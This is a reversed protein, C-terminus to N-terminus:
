NFIHQLAKLQEVLMDQNDGIEMVDGTKDAVTQHLMDLEEMSQKQVRTIPLM